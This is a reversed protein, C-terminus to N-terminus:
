ALQEAGLAFLDDSPATVAPLLGVVAPLIQEGFFRASVVRAALFDADGGAVNSAALAAKALLGGCVTTGLLRLYPVSAGLVSRPDTRGVGVLHETARRAADVAEALREGFTGLGDVDALQKARGDFADLLDTVVGGGRMALKRGVLDAAQIGNTGEYIAAIRMDRYHQAVGTEEVYGM